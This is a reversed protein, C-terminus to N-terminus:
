VLVMAEGIEADAMTSDIGTPSVGIKVLFVTVLKRSNGAEGIIELIRGGVVLVADIRMEVPRCGLEQGRVPLNANSAIDVVLESGVAAAAVQHPREFRVHGGYTGLNAVHEGDATVLPVRIQAAIFLKPGLIAYM